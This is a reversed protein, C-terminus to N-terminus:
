KWPRVSRIPIIEANERNEYWDPRRSAFIRIFFCCSTRRAAKMGTQHLDEGSMPIGVEAKYGKVAAFCRELRRSAQLQIEYYETPGETRGRWAMGGCALLLLLILTLALLIRRTRWARM